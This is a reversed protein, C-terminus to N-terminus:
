CDRDLAANIRKIAAEVERWNSKRVARNLIERVERLAKLLPPVPPPRSATM